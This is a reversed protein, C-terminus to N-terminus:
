SDNKQRTQITLVSGDEVQESLPKDNQLVIAEGGHCPAASIQLPQM